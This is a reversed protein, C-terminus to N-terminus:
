VYEEQCPRYVGKTNKHVRESEQMLLSGYESMHVRDDGELEHSLAKMEEGLEYLKKQISQIYELAEEKSVSYQKMM